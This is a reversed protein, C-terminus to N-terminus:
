EHNEEKQYVNISTSIKFDDGLVNSLIPANVNVKKELILTVFNGNKKTEYDINENAVYAAIEKNEGNEYLETITALDNNLEYKKIFINGIDVLAIFILLLVPVVLIFEVLAQGKNYM